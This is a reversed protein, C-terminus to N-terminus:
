AHGSGSPATPATPAAASADALGGTQSSGTFASELRLRQVVNGSAGASWRGQEVCYAALPQKKAGPALILDRGLTRDQKGGTVVEGAELYLWKTSGNSIELTNVSSNDQGSSEGQEAIVVDGSAIAEDLTIFEREDAVSGDAILFVTLNEHTFPGLITRDGSLETEVVPTSRDNVGAAASSGGESAGGQCGALAAAAGMAVTALTTTMVHMGM